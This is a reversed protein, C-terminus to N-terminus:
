WQKELDKWNSMVRIFIPSFTEISENGNRLPGQHRLKGFIIVPGM